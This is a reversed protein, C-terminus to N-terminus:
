EQKLYYGGTKPAGVFGILDASRLEKLRREVTRLPIDLKQSLAKASMNPSGAIFNLLENVGGNVGKSVGESDQTTQIKIRFVEGEEIIPDRGGYAKAYKYINKVGNGMEFIPKNM